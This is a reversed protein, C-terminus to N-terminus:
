RGTPVHKQLWDWAEQTLWGSYTDGTIDIILITDNGDLYSKLKDRVQVPTHSTVVVWTSELYHCWAGLNKIGEILGEYNQHPRHLDYTILIASM